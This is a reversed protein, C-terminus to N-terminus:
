NKWQRKNPRFCFILIQPFPHSVIFASNSLSTLAGSGGCVCCSENASLGNVDTRTGFDECLNFFREFAECTMLTGDTLVGVPEFDPDDFCKDDIGNDTCFFLTMIVPVNM